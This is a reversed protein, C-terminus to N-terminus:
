PRQDESPQRRDPWNRFQPLLATFRRRRICGLWVGACYASDDALRLAVYRAPDIGPRQRRWDALAPLLGGMLVTRRVRRSPVSAALAIPLWTRWLAAGLQRGAGIHGHLALDLAVPWPDALVPLKRPLLAATALATAVGAVAGPPGGLAALGWATASWGSMALPPVKGPHRQDLLAASTGYQARRALLEGLRERHAHVVEAGPEYRLRWDMRELRWLLDVDEGVRLDADFGGVGRIAATRVLLAASPVYALRTTPQIYGGIAGLDLPSRGAEYRAVMGTAGARGVIRPAVVAVTPDDLHALLPPLWGPRPVCDSDVFAVLDTQVEALGRNRAGSPGLSTENRVVTAGRSTAAESSGDSSGDDVVVVQGPRHTPGVANLADLLQSLSAQRDKVPIVVTVDSAQARGPADVPWCPDLVGADLLRRAMAMVKPRQGVPAGGLLEDLVRGAGPRLNLLRLPSGGLLVTAGARGELRRVGTALTVCM